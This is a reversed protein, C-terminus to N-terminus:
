VPTYALAISFVVIVFQFMISLFHNCFLRNNDPFIINPVHRPLNWALKNEQQSPDRICKMLMFHLGSEATKRGGIYRERGLRNSDRYSPRGVASTGKVVWSTVTVTTHYLLFAM